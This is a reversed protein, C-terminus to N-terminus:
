KEKDTLQKITKISKSNIISNLQKVAINRLIELRGAQEVGNEILLSNHTELNAMIINQEITANDRQNGKIELNKKRWEAATKGFLAVNLLDAENAYVHRKQQKTLEPPILYEKVANTHIIYNAKALERRVNWEISNKYAESKKLRKFESIVYLKFEPSLWSMFELAIDIHAFTGGGYKGSSSKMGIANTERIWKQPSLVFANTRYEKKFQDFAVLKFNPNNIQEWLGVFDVTDGRRMWNKIVDAPASSNKFRALDTLSIYDDNKDTIINIEINKVNIRNKVM